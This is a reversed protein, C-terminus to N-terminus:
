KKQRNAIIEALDNYLQNDEPNDSHFLKYFTDGGQYYAVEMTDWVKYQDFIRIYDRMRYGWGNKALARDDFEMEMSMGYKLADDCAKEVQSIQRDENFFYNPQYFAQDFGLKEWENFGDLNFYPIWYLKHGKSNSYDIVDTVLDRSNTAEEAVWYFGALELNKPNVKAFSEIVYDIFWKCAALRDEQKSFDMQRGDIEGWDAQNPIPEPITVVIKRKTFGKKTSKDLVKSIQDNLAMVANGDRFYNDVLNTWEIKRAPLEKYYSAFGRTGDHIELFLFGDFLWDQTGKNNELSVYPAFHDKDWKINRHSGGDYILVMDRITTDEFVKKTTGCSQLSLGVAVVMLLLLNHTIKCM